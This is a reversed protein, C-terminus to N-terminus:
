DKKEESVSKKAKNVRAIVIGIVVGIVLAAICIILIVIWANGYSEKETEEAAKEDAKVEAGDNETKTATEDEKATQAAEDDGEAGIAVPEAAGDTTGADAAGGAKLAAIKDAAIVESEPAKDDEPVIKINVDDVFFDAHGDTEVYIYESPTEEPISFRFSVEDWEGTAPIAALPVAEERDIGAIVAKDKTMVFFKVDITKGAYMSVDYKLTADNEKRSVKLAYGVGESKETHNTNMQLMINATHGSGRSFFGAQKPNVTAINGDGAEYPEFDVVLDKVEKQTSALTMNFEEGKAALVMADFAPKKSLDDYFALPTAHAKWSSGDTLGWLTVSTLNAGNKKEEILRKFFEYFFKAQFLWRNDDNKTAEIDLETIHVEDVAESYKELALMYSDINQKDNIHGQMGIGDILGDGYITGDGDPKIVDSQALKHGENYKRQTLFSIINDRRQSFWENYDNYFLKPLIPSLDGDPSLGYNAAYEKAYKVTAERAFLFAYYIYEPGIMNYWHSRRLGDGKSDDTAENLVDWAYIVDGYGNSYIFEMVGYIYTKMREILTERDVLCEPDLTAEGDNTPRKGSTPKFDIAYIAPSNQSHWLLTHGRMKMGNQKAWDLMEVAARNPTYLTPSSGDFNYAPKMENGCTISNFVNLILDEKYKNGIEKNKNNWHSIAECSSGVKFYDKYLEALSEYESTDAYEIGAASVQALGALPSIVLMLVLVAAIIRKKM